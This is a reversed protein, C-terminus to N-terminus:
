LFMVLVCKWELLSLLVPEFVFVLWAPGFSAHISGIFVLCTCLTSGSYEAGDNKADCMSSGLSGDIVTADFAAEVVLREGKGRLISEGDGM